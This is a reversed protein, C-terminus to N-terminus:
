SYLVLSYWTAAWPFVILCYLKLESDCTVLSYSSTPPAFDYRNFHQSLHTSFPKFFKIHQIKHIKHTHMHDTHTESSIQNATTYGHIDGSSGSPCFHIKRNRYWIFISNIFTKLTKLSMVFMCVILGFCPHLSGRSPRWIKRKLIWPRWSYSCCISCM